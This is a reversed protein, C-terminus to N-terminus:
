QCDGMENKMKRITGNLVDQAMDVYEHDVYICMCPADVKHEEWFECATITKTVYGKGGCNKCNERPAYHCNPFKKKIEELSVAKSM